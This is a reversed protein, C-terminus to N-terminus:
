VGAFGGINLIFLHTRNFVLDCFQAGKGLLFIQIHNINEDLFLRGFNRTSWNEVFHQVLYFIAFSVSNQSPVRISQRAIRHVAPFYNIEQIAPTNLREFKWRQPKFIGRLSFKHQVNYKPLAFVIHIRKGFVRLTTQAM